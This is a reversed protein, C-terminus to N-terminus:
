SKRESARPSIKERRGEERRKLLALGSSQKAFDQFKRENSAGSSLSSARSAPILHVVFVVAVIVVPRSSEQASLLAFFPVHCASALQRPEPVCLCLCLCVNVCQRGAFARINARGKGAGMMSITGRKKSDCLLAGLRAPALSLRASVFAWLQLMWPNEPCFRAVQNAQLTPKCCSM